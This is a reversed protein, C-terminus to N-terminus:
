VGGGVMQGAGVVLLLAGTTLLLLALAWALQRLTKM